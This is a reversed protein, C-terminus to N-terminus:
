RIGDEQEESEWVGDEMAQQAMILAPVPELLIEGDVVVVMGLENGMQLAESLAPERDGRYFGTTEIDYFGYDARQTWMLVIAKWGSMGLDLTIFSERRAQLEALNM